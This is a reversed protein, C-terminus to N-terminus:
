FKFMFEDLVTESNIKKPLFCKSHQFKFGQIVVDKKFCYDKRTGIEIEACVDWGDRNIQFEHKTKRKWYIIM